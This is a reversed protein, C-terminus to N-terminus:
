KEDNKKKNLLIELQDILLILKNILEDYISTKTFDINMDKFVLLPEKTGSNKLFNLFIESNKNIINHFIKLSATICLAYKFVYFPSYFFHLIKSWGYKKNDNTIANFVDWGYKNNNNIFLNALKESNLTKNNEIIKHVNWEFNSFQIQRFFTGIIENIRNQLLFIKEDNNTTQKYLYDFLLYENITSAVEAMIIPYNSLPYKNYKNAFLTHVSHGIEHILTNVSSISYDWNMLIIPNNGYSGCSYAGIKKNTDEFFDIHYDSLAIDLQQLYSEGLPSLAKKIINKAEEIQYKKNINMSNQILKLSSDTSFYKKFGFYKKLILHYRKFLYSHKKGYNILKKYINEHINDELLYKHLINKYNRLKSNIINNQIIGEYLRAFSHKKDVFNQFFIQSIKIRFKQDKLPHSNEMIENYLKNTLEQKNQKYKIFINKKDAYTLLNYLDYTINKQCNITSIIKEENESLIYKTYKFFMYFIYEYHSIENDNKIWKIIKKEGIKKLEINVFSIQSNLNTIKNTFLKNLEQYLINSINIDGICLYQKLKDCILNIQENLLLYKKFISIKNLKGKLNIIEKYKYIVKNLDKKWYKINKYLKVLNWKYIVPANKRKM